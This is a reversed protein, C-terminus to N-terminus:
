EKQSKHNKEIKTSTEIIKPVWHCWRPEKQMDIHNRQPSVFYEMDDM